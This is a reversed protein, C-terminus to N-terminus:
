LKSSSSNRPPPVRNKTPRFMQGVLTSHVNCAPHSFGEITMFLLYFLIKITLPIATVDENSFLARSTLFKNCRLKWLEGRPRSSQRQMSLPASYLYGSTPMTCSYLYSFHGHFSIDLNEIPRPFCTQKGRWHNEISMNNNLARLCEEDLTGLEEDKVLCGM